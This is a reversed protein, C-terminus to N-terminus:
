HLEDLAKELSPITKVAPGNWFIPAPQDKWHVDPAYLLAEDWHVGKQICCNPGPESPTRQAFENLAGSVAHKPDWFQRVRQDSIRAMVSKSPSGWDTALIPEWVVLVRVTREAHHALLQQV